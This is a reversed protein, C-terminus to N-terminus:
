SYGSTNRISFDEELKARNSNFENFTNYADRAEVNGAETTIVVQQLGAAIEAQQQKSRLQDVRDDVRDVFRKFFRDIKVIEDIIFDAIEKAAFVGGLFPVAKAINTMFSVPNKGLSVINGLGTEGLIGSLVGGKKGFNKVNDRDLKRQAKQRNREIQNQLKEADRNRQGVSIGALPGSGTAPLRADNRRISGKKQIKELEKRTKQAQRDLKELDNLTLDDNLDIFDDFPM